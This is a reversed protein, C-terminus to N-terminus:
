KVLLVPVDVLRIVSTATSGLLLGALASYGHTGMVIQDIGNTKVHEAVVVAVDGVCVHNTYPIGAEDLLRHASEMAELGTQRHVEVSHERSVHVTGPFPHQVNMLHVDPMERFGALIPILAKVARESNGSGDVLVLIRHM